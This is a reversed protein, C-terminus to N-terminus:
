LLLLLSPVYHLVPFGPHQLGHPWLSDSVVSLSFLKGSPATIFLGSALAPSRGRPQSSGRSSSIAGWGLIRAQFIGHVSSGPPNCDRHDCLAPCSQTALMWVLMHMEAVQPWYGTNQCGSNRLAWWLSHSCGSLQSDSLAPIRRGSHGKPEPIWM